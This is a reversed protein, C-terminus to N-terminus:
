LRGAVVVKARDVEDIFFSGIARRERLWAPTHIHISFSWAVDDLGLDRALTHLM